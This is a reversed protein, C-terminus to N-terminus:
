QSRLARGFPSWSAQEWSEGGCMPCSPLTRVITVGYGCEACHFEGKVRVGATLFEIFDEAPDDRRKGQERVDAVQSSGRVTSRDHREVDLTGM